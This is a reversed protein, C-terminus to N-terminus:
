RVAWAGIWDVDVTRSTTTTANAIVTAYLAVDPGVGAAGTLSLLLNGDIYYHVDAGDNSILMELVQFTDAVPGVGTSANGTDETDGDVALGYWEKLTAGDDFCFCAADTATSTVTATAVAFPEELAQNDTLGFNVSLSTIASVLRLRCAVLTDGGLSDLQFPARVVFQSGDNAVTGDANGTVCQYVGIGQTVDHAPDIAQADGGSNLIFPSDAETAPTEGTVFDHFFLEVLDGGRGVLRGPASGDADTVIMSNRLRYPAGKLNPRNAM